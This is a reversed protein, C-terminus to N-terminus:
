LQDSLLVHSPDTVVIKFNKKENPSFSDTLGFLGHAVLTFKCQFLFIEIVVAFM